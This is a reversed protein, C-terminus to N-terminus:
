VALCVHSNRFRLGNARRPSEKWFGRVRQLFAMLTFFNLTWLIQFIRAFIYKIIRYAHFIFKIYFIRDKKIFIVIANSYIESWHM